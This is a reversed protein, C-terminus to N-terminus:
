LKREPKSGNYFEKRRYLIENVVYPRLEEDSRKDLPFDKRYETLVNEIQVEPVDFIWPIIGITVKKTNPYLPEYRDTTDTM